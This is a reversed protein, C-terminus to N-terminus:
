GLPPRLGRGVAVNLARAKRVMGRRYIDMLVDLRMRDSEDLSGERQLALLGNLDAQQTEAMELDCLALVDDDSLAEVPVDAAARDLWEVLVDEVRRQTQAAVSRASKVLVDPLELTVIESM